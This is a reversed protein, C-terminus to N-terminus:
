GGIGIRRLRPGASRLLTEAAATDGGFLAQELARFEPGHNMHRLHAVEHAVVYRRAEPPALILRWSFRIRGSTSCSGWRTRADGVTVAVPRCEARAAFEATEMSLTDLARRRLFLEIRRAFGARPGGCTLIGNALRPLRPAGEIWRLAVDTGELPIVAGDALPEAPLVQDMQREVWAKQSATWALAASARVGRPHTVKILREREDLRLRM